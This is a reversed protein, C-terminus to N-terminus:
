AWGKFNELIIEQHTDYRAPIGSNEFIEISNGKRVVIKSGEKIVIEPAIFLKIKQSTNNQMETESTNSITEYSVRCPEKELVVVEKNETRKNKQNIAAQYEIVDCERDYMSEIAKRAELLYQNM